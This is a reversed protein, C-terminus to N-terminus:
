DGRVYWKAQSQWMHHYTAHKLLENHTGQAIVQGNELLIIKDALTASGLRHTVIISTKDRSLAFFQRYLNAEEIPDIASTPEDLVVIERDRYYSRAIAVKQWQGGSLDIGGFERSLVTDYSLTNPKVFNAKDLAQKFSGHKNKDSLEINERLTMKYRNFEQFVVSFHEFIMDPATEKTDYGNISVSGKIPQYLGMILKVLTSKGSGNAGVLAVCEGKKITITIDKLAEKSSQPYQFSVNKLVTSDDGNQDKVITYDTPEDLDFLRDLHIILGSHESIRGFTYTVMEDMIIFMVEISSFIAGFAGISIDKKILSVFLMILLVIYGTLSILSLVLSLIFRKKNNQSTTTNIAVLSDRLQKYFFHWAGMIKTEKVYRTNTLTKEYALSRRKMLAIEDELEYSFKAKVFQGILVPVFVFLVSLILNSQNAYLYLSMFIFYPVYFGIVSLTAQTLECASQISDRAKQIADLRESYEYDIAELQNVKQQIAIALKGTVKDSIYPILYNTVGNLLQSILGSGFVALVCVFVTTPEGGRISKALADFLHQTMLVVFVFSGSHFVELIFYILWLLKEQSLVLRYTKIIRKINSVKM